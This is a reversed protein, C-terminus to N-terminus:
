VGGVFFGGDLVRDLGPVGSSFRTLEQVFSQKTM